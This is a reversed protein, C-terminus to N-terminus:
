AAPTAASTITATPNYQGSYLWSRLSCSIMFTFSSV